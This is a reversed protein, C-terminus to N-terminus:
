RHDAPTPKITTIQQEPLQIESAMRWTNGEDSLYIQWRGPTIPDLAGRYIGGVGTLKLTHDLGARTPHAIIVTIRGPLDDRSKLKVTVQGPTLDMDAQMELQRAKESRALDLNIAVGKKYYDEVVLGDNSKIAYWLTIFSAVVVVAPGAMLLWPGRHRYWPLTSTNVKQEM